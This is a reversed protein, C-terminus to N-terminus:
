TQFCYKMVQDLLYAYFWPNSECLSLYERHAEQVIKPITGISGHNLYKIQKDLSYDGKTPLKGASFKNILKERFVLEVPTLMSLVSVTSGTALTKLFDRRSTNM